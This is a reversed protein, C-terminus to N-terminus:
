SDCAPKSRVGGILTGQAELGDSYKGRITANCSSTATLTCVERPRQRTWKVHTDQAVQISSQEDHVSPTNQSDTSEFKLLPLISRHARQTHRPDSTIRSRPNCIISHRRVGKREVVHAGRKHSHGIKSPWSARANKSIRTNHVAAGGIELWDATAYKWHDGPYREM